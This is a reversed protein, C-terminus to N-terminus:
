ESNSNKSGRKLVSNFMAIQKKAIAEYSLAQEFFLIAADSLKEKDCSLVKEASMVFSERDGPNWLSGLKGQNTMMRFSPIDTVLPICGCALAECLAFGSGEYHSGLVFIDASSYYWDLDMNPVKGVLIVNQTLVNSMEMRSKIEKLLKEDTYVMLLRLDPYKNWLQEFGSIVTLPDKNEDLRGVWLLVLESEPIRLHKRASQKDKKKKPTSGEMIEFVESGSDIIGKQIFKDVQTAATFVYNKVIKKTWQCLFGTFGSPIGGGHYQIILPCKLQVRLLLIQVPNLFGHLLIVDPKLSKILRHLRWPIWTKARKGKLFYYNVGSIKTTEEQNLLRIVHLDVEKGLISHHGSGQEYMRMLERYDSVGGEYYYSLDVVKIKNKM